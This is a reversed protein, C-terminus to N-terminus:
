PVSVVIFIAFPVARILGAVLEIFNQVLDIRADFGYFAVDTDHRRMCFCVLITTRVRNIDRIQGPLARLRLYGRRMGPKM